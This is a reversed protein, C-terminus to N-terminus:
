ELTNFPEDSPELDRVADEPELVASALKEITEEVSQYIELHKEEM